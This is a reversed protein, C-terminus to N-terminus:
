PCAGPRADPWPMDEAGGTYGGHRSDYGMGLGPCHANFGYGM